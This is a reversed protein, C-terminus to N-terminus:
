HASLISGSNDTEHHDEHWTYSFLSWDRVEESKLFLAAGTIYTLNFKEYLIRNVVNIFSILSGQLSFAMLLEWLINILARNIENIILINILRFDSYTTTNKQAM